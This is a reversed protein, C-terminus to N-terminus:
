HWGSIVAVWVHQTGDNFWLYLQGGVSDFWLANDHPNAPAVSAVIVGPGAPGPGALAIWQESDGDDFWLYLQGDTANFWLSNPAPNTPLTASVIPVQVWEGDSRGYVADDPADEIATGAFLEQVGTPTGIWMRIPYDALGAALEGEALAAPPKNPDTTRKIKIVQAM